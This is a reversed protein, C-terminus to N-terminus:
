PLLTHTNHTRAHEGAGCVRCATQYKEAPPPHHWRNVVGVVEENPSLVHTLTDDASLLAGDSTTLSLEPRVGHQSYYREAAQGALWGVSTDGGDARPPCPILYTQGELKVRIRLPADAPVTPGPPLHTSSPALDSPLDGEFDSMIEITPPDSEGARRRGLRSRVRRQRRMDRSRGTLGTIGTSELTRQRKRKAPPQGIDDVLWNDVGVAEEGVEREEGEGEGEPILSSLEIQGLPNYFGKSHRSASGTGSLSSQSHRQSATFPDNSHTPITPPAEEEESTYLVSRGSRDRGRSARLAAGGVEGGRRRMERRLFESIDRHEGARDGDDSRLRDEVLCLATLGQPFPTHGTYCSVGGCTRLGTCPSLVMLNQLIHTIGLM